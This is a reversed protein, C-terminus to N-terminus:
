IEEVVELMRRCIMDADFRAKAWGRMSKSCSPNYGRLEAEIDDAGFRKGLLRGSCNTEILRSFAPEDRILCEGSAGTNHVLVPRGCLMAEYVARGTAVVLDSERMLKEINYECRRGRAPGSKPARWPTQIHFCRATVEGADAGAAVVDAGIRRAFGRVAGLRPRRGVVLIRRITDAPPTDARFRRSDIPTRLLRVREPQIHGLKLLSACVEETSGLHMANRYTVAKECARRDIHVVLKKAQPLSEGLVDASRRSYAVCFDWSMSAISPAKNPPIVSCGRMGLLKPLLYSKRDDRDRAHDPHLALVHVDAGDRLMNAAVTELHASVADLSRLSSACLLVRM